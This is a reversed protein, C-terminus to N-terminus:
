RSSAARQWPTIHPKHRLLLELRCVALKVTRKGSAAINSRAVLAPLCRLEDGAGQEQGAQLRERHVETAATM